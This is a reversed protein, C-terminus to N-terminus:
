IIILFRLYPTITDSEVFEDEKLICLILIEMEEPELEVTPYRLSWERSFSTVDVSPSTVCSHIRREKTQSVICFLMETM